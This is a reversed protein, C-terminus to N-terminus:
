LLPLGHPNIVRNLENTSLASVYEDVARLQMQRKLDQTLIVDGEEILLPAKELYIHSLKRKEREIIRGEENTVPPVIALLKVLHLGNDDELVDSIEGERMAFIKAQMEPTDLDGEEFTGWVGDDASPNDEDPDSVRAAIKLFDERKAIIQGKWGQLRAKMLNNTATAEANMRAVEMKVDKVFEDTVVEKPPIKDHILKDMVFAVGIEYLAYHRGNRLGRLYKEPTMGKRKSIDAVVKGVHQLVENTTVVGTSFAHDVLLRQAIFRKFYSKKFADLHEEAVYSTMGKRSTIEELKLKVIDDYARKSLREGNVILIVDDPDLADIAGVTRYLKNTNQERLSACPDISLIDSSLEVSSARDCGIMISTCVLLLIM